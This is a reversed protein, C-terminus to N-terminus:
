ARLMTPPCHCQNTSKATTLGLGRVSNQHGQVLWFGRKKIFGLGLDNRVKRRRRAEGGLWEKWMGSIRQGEQRRYSEWIKGQLEERRAKRGDNGQYAKKRDRNSRCAHATQQTNTATSQLKSQRTQKLEQKFWKKYAMLLAKYLSANYFRPRESSQTKTGTRNQGLGHPKDPGKQWSRIHPIIHKLWPGLM